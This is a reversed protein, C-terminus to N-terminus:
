PERYDQDFLEKTRWASRRCVSLLPPPEPEEPGGSRCGSVIPLVACRVCERGKGSGEDNQVAWKQM